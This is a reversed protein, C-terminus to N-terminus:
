SSLICIVSSVSEPGLLATRLYMTVRSLSFTLSQESKAWICNDKCYCPFSCTLFFDMGIHHMNPTRLEWLSTFFGQM